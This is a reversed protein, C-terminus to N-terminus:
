IVKENRIWAVHSPRELVHNVVCLMVVKSGVKVHRESPPLIEVRPVLVELEIMKSLVTEASVQCQYGGEDEAMVNQINLSWLDNQQKINLRPDSIFVERDVALIRRDKERVWSVSGNGLHRVRCELFATMGEQVTYVKDEPESFEPKLM